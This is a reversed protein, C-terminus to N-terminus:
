SPKARGQRAETQPPAASSGAVKAPLDGSTAEGVTRSVRAPKASPLLRLQVPIM